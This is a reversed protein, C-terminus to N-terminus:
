TNKGLWKRVTGKGKGGQSVKCNIGKFRLDSM